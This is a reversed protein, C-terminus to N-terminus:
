AKRGENDAEKCSSPWSGASPARSSLYWSRKRASRYTETAFQPLSDCTTLLNERTFGCSHSSESLHTWPHTLGEMCVRLAEERNAEKDGETHNMLVLALRDYWEGRRGRRFCTQSLLTRLVEVERDYQHLRALISAGKYVVRTLPWGLLVCRMTLLAHMHQPFWNLRGALFRKRYYTLRDDQPASFNGDEDKVLKMAEADKTQAEAVLMKWRPWVEEFVKLGEKLGRERDEKTFKRKGRTADLVEGLLEEMKREVLLAEEYDVLAQRNAFITFSRNVTYKPYNRIKFRALVAQTLTKESYSVSRYYLLHLRAFLRIPASELKICPGLHAM